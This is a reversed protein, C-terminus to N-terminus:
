PQAYVNTMCIRGVSYNDTLQTTFWKSNGRWFRRPFVFVVVFRTTKGSFDSSTLLNKLRSAAAVKKNPPLELAINRKQDGGCLKITLTTM